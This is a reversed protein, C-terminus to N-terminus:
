RRVLASASRRPTCYLLSQIAVITKIAAMTRAFYTQWFQFGLISL